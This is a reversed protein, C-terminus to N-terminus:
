RDPRSQRARSRATAPGRWPTGGQFEAGFDWSPLVDAVMTAVGSDKRFRFRNTGLPAANASGVRIGYGNVLHAGAPATWAGLVPDPPV